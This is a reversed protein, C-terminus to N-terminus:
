VWMSRSAQAPPRAQVTTAAAAPRAAAPRARTAAPPSRPRWRDAEFPALATALREGDRTCTAICAGELPLQRLTALGIGSSGVTVIAVRDTRALDM